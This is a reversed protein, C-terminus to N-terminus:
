TVPAAPLSISFYTGGPGSRPTLLGTGDGDPLQVDVLAVDFDGGTAHALASKRDSAITTGAGLTNVIEALNDALAEDDDVILVNGSIPPKDDLM